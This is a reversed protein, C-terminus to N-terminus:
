RSAALGGAWRGAFFAFRGTRERSGTFFAGGGTLEGSGM